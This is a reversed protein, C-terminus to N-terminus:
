AAGGKEDEARHEAIERQLTALRQAPPPVPRSAKRDWSEIGALALAAIKILRERASEFKAQESQYAIYRLWDSYIHTDDHEPGGWQEDQRQREANVDRIVLLRRLKAEIVPVDSAAYVTVCEVATDLYPQEAYFTQGGRTDKVVYGFQKVPGSM